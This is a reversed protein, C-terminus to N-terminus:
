RAAEAECGETCFADDCVIGCVKCGGKDIGMQRLVDELEEARDASMAGWREPIAWGNEEFAAKFSVDVSDGLSKLEAYRKEPIGQPPDEPAVEASAKRNYSGIAATVTAPIGPTVVALAEGIGEPSAEEHDMGDGILAVSRPAALLTQRLEVQWRLFEAVDGLAFSVVPFSRKKDPIKKIGVSMEFPLGTFSWAEPPMCMGEAISEVTDLMGKMNECSDWGHSQYRVLIAPLEPYDQDTWRLLFYLRGLAGCIKKSGQRFVCLRNPCPITIFQPEEGKIGAYRHATVGDGTCAPMSRPPTEWTGGGPPKGPGSGLQQAALQVNFGSDRDPLALNGRLITTGKDADDTENFARYSPHLPHRLNRFSGGRGRNIEEFGTSLIFFRDTRQPAGSPGKVGTSVVGGFSVAGELGDIGNFRSSNM